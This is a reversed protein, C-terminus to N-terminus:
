VDAPQEFINKTEGLRGELIQEFTGELANRSFTFFWIRTWFGQSQELLGQPLHKSRLLANFM